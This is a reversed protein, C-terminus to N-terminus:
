IQGRELMSVLGQPGRERWHELFEALTTMDSSLSLHMNVQTRVHGRRRLAFVREFLLERLLKDAKRASIVRWETGAIRTAFDAIQGSLPPPQEHDVLHRVIADEVRRKGGPKGAFAFSALHVLNEPVIAGVVDATMGPVSVIAFVYPLFEKRQKETGSFIKYTALGYCDEAELGVEKKANAFLTGHFKINLRLVPRGAGNRVRYDTDTYGPREDELELDEAGFRERYLREFAREALEAQLLQGLSQRRKALLNADSAAALTVGFVAECLNTDEVALAEPSPVSAEVAEAVGELRNGQAVDRATRLAAFPRPVPKGRYVEAVVALLDDVSALM